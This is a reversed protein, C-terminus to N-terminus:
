KEILDTFIYSKFNNEHQHEGSCTQARITSCFITTDSLATNNAPNRPKKDGAAKAKGTSINEFCFCFIRM